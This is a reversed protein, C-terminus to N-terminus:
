DPMGAVAPSAAQAILRRPVGTGDASAVWVEEGNGYLVLKNGLWEVQDDIVRSEALPTERMTRLDLVYLHWVRPSGQAVEVLKKYAIRTGDPALSPCEVNEHLVHATRAKVDGEILFTTGGTALTAYFRNSDRAFTVGWFNFDPADIPKGDRTVRFRELNAIVKGSVMDILLTQTSFKGPASYSHGSVFTTTAGYRGDPSVRTRSPLGSLPVRHVTRYRSDLVLASYLTGFGGGKALCLGRGASFYVRECRPGDVIRPAGEAAPTTVALKWYNSPHLRDLDVFLIKRNWVDPAALLRETSLTDVPARTPAAPTAVRKTPLPPPASTASVSALGLYAGGAVLCAGALLAFLWRRRSRV